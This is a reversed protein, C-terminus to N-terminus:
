GVPVQVRCSVGLKARRSLTKIEYRLETTLHLFAKELTWRTRYLAALTAAGAM